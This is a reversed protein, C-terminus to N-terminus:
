LGGIPTATFASLKAGYFIFEGIILGVVVYLPSNGTSAMFTQGQSQLFLALALGLFTNPRGMGVMGALSLSPIPSVLERPSEHSVTNMVARICNFRGVVVERVLSWRDGFVVKEQSYCNKVCIVSHVFVVQRVRGFVM